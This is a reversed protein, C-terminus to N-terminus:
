HILPFSKLSRDRTLPTDEVTGNDLTHSVTRSHEMPTYMYSHINMNSITSLKRSTLLLKYQPM